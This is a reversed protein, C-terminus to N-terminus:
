SGLADRFAQAIAAYGATNSPYRARAAAACVEMDM